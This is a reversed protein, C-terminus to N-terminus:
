VIVDSLNNEDIHKRKKTEQKTKDKVDGKRIKVKKKLGVEGLGAM